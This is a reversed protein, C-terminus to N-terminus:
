GACRVDGEGFFHKQLVGDATGGKYSENGGDRGGIKGCAAAGCGAGWWIGGLYGRKHQPDGVGKWTGRGYAGRRLQLLFGVEGGGM